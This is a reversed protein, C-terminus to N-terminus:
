LPAMWELHGDVRVLSRPADDGPGHMRLVDDRGDGPDGAHPATAPELWVHFLPGTRDLADIARDFVARRPEPVHMRTASHFVLRPEGPPLRREVVPCLDVADGRLVTTGAAQALQMADRLLLAKHQDEPWVLARLWRRDAANAPDPPELDIGIRSSIAPVADLDPPPDAACWQVDLTVPSDPDGASRGGLVHRYRDVLLHLGLGSGVDVLHVTDVERGVVTMAYRLALARKVVNSQVLRTAILRTLAARHERCFDRFAGPASTPARAAGGVISPYYRGLEHRVGGLLLFHVAGFLLFSPQQGARRATLLELVEDQEAVAPCLAAYLPSTTFVRGAAAFHAALDGHVPV